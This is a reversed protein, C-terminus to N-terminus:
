LRFGELTEAEVVESVSNLQFVGLQVDQFLKLLVAELLAELTSHEEPEVARAKLHGVVLFIKELLDIREYVFDGINEEACLFEM